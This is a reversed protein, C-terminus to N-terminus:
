FKTVDNEVTLGSAHCYQLRKRLLPQGEHHYILNRGECIMYLFVNKKCIVDHRILTLCSVRWLVLLGATKSWIIGEELM